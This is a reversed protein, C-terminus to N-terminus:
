VKPKCPIGNFDKDTRFISINPDRTPKGNLYEPVAFFVIFAPWVSSDPLAIGFRDYHCYCFINVNCQLEIGILLGVNHNITDPNFKDFISRTVSEPIKIGNWNPTITLVLETKVTYKPLQFGELKSLDVLNYLPSLNYKGPIIYDKSHKLKKVKEDPEWGQQECFEDMEIRDDDTLDKFGIIGLDSLKKKVDAPTMDKTVKIGFPEKLTSGDKLIPIFMIHHNKNTEPEM